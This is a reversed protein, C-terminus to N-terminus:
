APRPPGSLEFVATASCATPFWATYNGWPEDSPLKVEKMAADYRKGAAATKVAAAHENTGQWQNEGDQKNGPRGGPGPIAPFHAQGWDPRPGELWSDPRSRWFVAQILMFDVAFIVQGKPLRM